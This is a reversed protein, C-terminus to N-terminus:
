RRRRRRVVFLCLAGSVTLALATGVVEGRAGDAGTQALQGHAPPAKPVQPAHTVPAKAEVTATSPHSGATAGGPTRATATATNRLDQGTLDAAVVTYAATCKLNQGPLLALRPCSVPGLAGRGTFEGESVAPDTLTVNGTNTLTFTYTIVQGAHTAQTTDATKVLDLGAVPTSSVKTASPPSTAPTGGPPTGTASATNTIGGREVDEQTVTYRATCTVKAGPAMSKAADPCTVGPAGGSGTFDPEEIGADTLTVNGTNTVEYSYHLVTGVKLHGGDDVSQRLLLGPRPPANVTASSENSVPTTTGAPPTATAQATNTIKGANVDAQTVTYPATCTVSGGPDVSGAPCTIQPATGTGSFSREAVKVETLPFDGTNTATFSYQVTDGAKGVTGPDATKQLSLAASAPTIGLIQGLADLSSATGEYGFTFTLSTISRTPTAIDYAGCGFTGCSSVDQAQQTGGVNGAPNAIGITTGGSKIEMKSTQSGPADLSFTGDQVTMPHNHYAAVTNSSDLSLGGVDGVYVVPTKVPQSFTYTISGCGGPATQTCDALLFRLAASQTNPLYSPRPGTFIVDGAPFMGLQGSVVATVVVGSPTTGTATNGNM